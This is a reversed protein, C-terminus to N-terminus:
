RPRWVGKEDFLKGEEALHQYVEEVFFPNGETEDFIIKALSHSRAQGSLAALMAEVGVLPLRRLPMRSALKQRLLSELTKAFPRTVDLEVDRYTGILLVPMTSVTKALHELLLLTSDDAWHLDEFVAICPTLRAAREVFERYANFLFRRQQEPPLEIPAPIDAYIRRLEPMLKAVEPAAEGLAYRFSERPLARAGYELMEIFPVYPPAGELEYCHGVVTFCGRSAAERLIARTLHTKGIGPEGGILALSGRGALAAELLRLLEVREHDRGVLPVPPAAEQTPEATSVTGLRALDARAESTSQYREERSRARVRRVM